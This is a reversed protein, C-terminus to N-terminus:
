SMQISRALVEKVIAETQSFSQFKVSSSESPLHLQIKAHFLTKSAFTHGFHKPAVLFLYIFSGEYFAM